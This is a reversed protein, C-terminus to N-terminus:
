DKDKFTQDKDQDKFTLDKNVDSSSMRAAQFAHIKAYIILIKKDGIGWVWGTVSNDVCGIILM